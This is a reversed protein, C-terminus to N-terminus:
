QQSSCYALYTVKHPTTTYNNGSLVTTPYHWSIQGANPLHFFINQLFSIYLQISCQHTILFCVYHVKSFLIIAPQPKRSTLQGKLSAYSILRLQWYFFIINIFFESFILVKISLTTLSVYNIINEEFIM